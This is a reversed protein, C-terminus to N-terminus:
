ATRTKRAWAYRREYALSGSAGTIRVAVVRVARDATVDVLVGSVPIVLPHALATSGGAAIHGRQETITTAHPSELTQAVRTLQDSGIRHYGTFGIIEVDMARWQAPLTVVASWVLSGSGTIDSESTSHPQLVQLQAPPGIDVRAGQDRLYWGADDRRLTPHRLSGGPDPRLSRALDRTM